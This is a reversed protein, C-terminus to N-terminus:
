FSMIKAFGHAQPFKKIGKADSKFRVISLEELIQMDVQDVM